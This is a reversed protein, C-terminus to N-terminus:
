NLGTGTPQLWNTLTVDFTVADLAEFRFQFDYLQGAVFKFGSPLPLYRFQDRYIFNGSGDKLSFEIWVYSASGSDGPTIGIGPNYAGPTVDQPLVMMIDNESLLNVYQQPQMPDIGMIAVGSTPVGASYSQQAGYNDWRFNLPYSPDISYFFTGESYLATIEIANIVYTLESGIIDGNPLTVVNDNLASFTVGSLAHQFNFVIQGSNKDKGLASAVLLDVATNSGSQDSPVTYEFSVEGAGDMNLEANNGMNVDKIPAYAYFNIKTGEAPYYKTPSYTWILDGSNTDFVRWVATQMFNFEYESTATPDLAAAVFFSSLESVNDVLSARSKAGKDLLTRFEIANDPNAPNNENSCASALLAVVAIAAFIVQKKM